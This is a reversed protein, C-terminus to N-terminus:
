TKSECIARAIRRGQRYGSCLYGRMMQDPWDLISVCPFGKDPHYLQNLTTLGNHIGHATEAQLVIGKANIELRYAEHRTRQPIRDPLVGLSFKVSGKPLLPLEKGVTENLRDLAASIEDEINEAAIGSVAELQLWGPTESTWTIEQPAPIISPLETMGGFAALLVILLVCNM